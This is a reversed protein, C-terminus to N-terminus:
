PNFRKAKIQYGGLFLLVQDVPVPTAKSVAGANAGVLGGKRKFAQRLGVKSTYPLGEYQAWELFKAWSIHRVHKAPKEFASAITM